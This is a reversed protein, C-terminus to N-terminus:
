FCIGEIFIKLGIAILILGGILGTDIRIYKTVEYAMYYGLLSLGFSVLAILIIGGWLYDPYPIFVIGTALADISTAAAMLLLYPVTWNAHHQKNNKKETVSDLIMKGGIITLLILAVWPAFREFFATFLSGGYYGILPMIGQFLGFLLAMLWVESRMQHEVRKANQEGDLGQAVSVAFCDMALGVAMLLITIWDM